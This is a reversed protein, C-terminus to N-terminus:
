NWSEFVAGIAAWMQEKPDEPFDNGTREKVIGKFVSVLEKWDDAGLDVDEEVGREKKKTEIAVEFPDEEREGAKVGLVVDAFMSVFRRYSDYAFRPNGTRAVLGKVTQDNLGLNLVTDMMGPMSIRAGSRVSLLLPNEVDGFKAGMIEEIRQLSAEVDNKLGEPYSSNEMFYTCVETTITFGAPVKLDINTMEALNAGKGGLLNKMEAKGEASDGGFNYVYKTAM